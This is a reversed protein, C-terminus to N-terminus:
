VCEVSRPVSHLQTAHSQPLKSEELNVSWFITNSFEWQSPLTYIYLYSFLNQDLDLLWCCQRVMTRIINFQGTEDPVLQVHVWQEHFKATSLCIWSAETTYIPPESVRSNLQQRLNSDAPLYRETWKHPKHFSNKEVLKARVTSAWHMCWQPPSLTNNLIPDRERCLRSDNGNGDQDHFHWQAKCQNINGNSHKTPELEHESTNRAKDKGSPATFLGLGLFSSGSACARSCVPFLMWPPLFVHM